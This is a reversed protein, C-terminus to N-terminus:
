PMTLELQYPGPPGSAASVVILPQTTNSVTVVQTLPVGADPGSVCTAPGVSFCFGFSNCGGLVQVRPVFATLPRVNITLAGTRPLTPRWLQDPGTSCSQCDVDAGADRLDGQALVRFGSPSNTGLPFFPNECSDGDPVPTSTVEFWAEGQSPLGEIAFNMSWSTFPSQPRATLTDTTICTMPTECPFSPRYLRLGADPKVRVEVRALTGPTVTGFFDSGGRTDCTDASNGFAPRGDVITVRVALPGGDPTFARPEACRGGAALPLRQATLQYPGGARVDDAWAFATHAIELQTTAVGGSVPLCGTSPCLGNLSYGLAAPSGGDLPRLSVQLVDGGLDPVSSLKWVQDPGTGGCQLDQDNLALTTDGEAVALGGDLPVELLRASECREGQFPREVEITLTFDASGGEVTILHRGAALSTLRTTSASSCASFPRGCPLPSVAVKLAEGAASVTSLRVVGARVLELEFSVEAAGQPGCPLRVDDAAGTFTGARTLTEGLDLRGLPIRDACTDGPVPAAATWGLRALGDHTFLATLPGSPRRGLALPEAPVPSACALSSSSCGGPLVELSTSTSAEARLSLAEAEVVSLRLVESGADAAACSPAQGQLSLGRPLALVGHGRSLGVELPTQCARGRDSPVLKAAVLVPGPSSASVAVTTTGASVLDEVVILRGGAAAAECRGPAACDRTLEVTLAQQASAPTLELVLRGATPASVLFFQTPRQTACAGGVTETGDFRVQTLLGGDLPLARPWECFAGPAGADPPDVKMTTCRGDECAQGGTCATCAAGNAGCTQASASVCQQDETCCGSCRQACALPRVPPASCAASLLLLSVAFAYWAPSPGTTHRVSASSTEWRPQGSGPALASSRTRPPRPSVDRESRDGRPRGM